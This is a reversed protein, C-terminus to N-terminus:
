RVQEADFVFNWRADRNQYTNDASAPLWVTVDVARKAEPSFSLGLNRNNLNNLKGSWEGGSLANVEVWLNNYLYSGSTNHSSIRVSGIDLTGNNELVFRHTESEGAAMPRAEFRGSDTKISLNGTAYVNNSVTETDTFYAGTAGVVMVTVAAITMLSLAIRKM